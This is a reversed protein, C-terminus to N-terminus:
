EDMGKEAEDIVLQEEDRPKWLNEPLDRREELKEQRRMTRYRDELGELQGECPDILKAAEEFFHEYGRKMSRGRQTHQDLAEDPIERRPMHDGYHAFAAWQVIRSKRASALLIVAHMMELVGADPNERVAPKGRAKRHMEKLAVYEAVIGADPAVDEHIITDMRRWLWGDYSSRELESAWYLAADVDSRRVAKQFASVVEYVDYGRRTDKLHFRPEM